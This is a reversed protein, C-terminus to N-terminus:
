QINWQCFDFLQQIEDCMWFGIIVVDILQNVSLDGFDFGVQGVYFGQFFLEGGKFFVIIVVMGDVFVVDQM